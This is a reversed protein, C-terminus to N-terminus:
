PSGGPEVSAKRMEQIYRDVRQRSMGWANAIEWPRMGEDLCRGILLVRLRHRAVAIRQNAEQTAGRQTGASTYSLTETIKEGARLREIGRQLVEEGTIMVQRAARNADILEEIAEIIREDGDDV